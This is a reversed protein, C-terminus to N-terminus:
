TGDYAAARSGDDDDALAFGLATAGLGTAILGAGGGFGGGGGGGFGGGGCYGCDAPFSDQYLPEECCIEEEYVIENAPFVLELPAEQVVPGCCGLDQVMPGCGPGVVAAGVVEQTMFSTLVPGNKPIEASEVVDESLLEVTYEATTSGSSAVISYTGPEVNAMTFLGTAGVAANGVQQDESDFLTLSASAHGLQSFSERNPGVLIGRLTGDADLYAETTPSEIDEIAEVLEEVVEADEAPAPTVLDQTGSQTAFGAGVWVCACCAAVATSALTKLKLM